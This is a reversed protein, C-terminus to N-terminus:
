LPKCGTPLTKMRTVARMGGNSPILIYQIPALVTAHCIMGGRAASADRKPALEFGWHEVESGAGQKKGPIAASSPEPGQSQVWALSM